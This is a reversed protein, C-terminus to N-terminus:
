ILLSRINHSRACSVEELLKRYPEMKRRINTNSHTHERLVMEVAQLDYNYRELLAYKETKNYITKPISSSEDIAQDYLDLIPTAKSNLVSILDNDPIELMTRVMLMSRLNLEFRVKDEYYKLLQEPNKLSLLFSRNEARKLEKTKNYIVLRKYRKKTTVSNYLELGNNRCKRVLWKDYNTINAKIHSKIYEMPYNCSIDKTIDCLCVRSNQIIGDINLDCIRMDIIRQLCDRINNRNILDPYNDKLIKGTFEITTEMRDPYVDIALFFPEEQQYKYYFGGRKRPISLFYSQNLNTINLSSTALKLRDFLIM